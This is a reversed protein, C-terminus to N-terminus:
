PSSCAVSTACLRLRQLKLSGEVPGNRTEKKKNQEELAGVVELVSPRSPDVVM